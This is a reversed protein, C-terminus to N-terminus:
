LVRCKLRAEMLATKILPTIGNVVGGDKRFSGNRWRKSIERATSVAIEDLDKAEVELKIDTAAM